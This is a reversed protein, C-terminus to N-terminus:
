TDRNIKKNPMKFVLGSKHFLYAACYLLCFAWLYAGYTYTIKDTLWPSRLLFVSLSTILFLTGIIKPFMFERRCIIRFIVWYFLGNMYWRLDLAGQDLVMYGKYYPVRAGENHLAPLFLSLLYLLIILFPTKKDILVDFM